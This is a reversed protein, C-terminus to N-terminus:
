FARSISFDSLHALFKGRDGFTSSIKRCQEAKTECFEIAGELGLATVANFRSSQADKRLKKGVVDESGVEDLIDDRVQFASGLAKSYGSLAARQAPTARGIIGGALLAFDFLKGTKLAHCSALDAASPHPSPYLDIMQGGALGSFGIADALHMVLTARIAPDPDTAEDAIIRFALALLADGALIATAEDYQRHLTPKGRRLDDNDMAPLDDHILSQAHICEVACAVRLLRPYHAGFLEGAALTLLARLRKGAGITAYRMADTLRGEAGPKNPLAAALFNDVDRKITDIKQDFKGGSSPCASAVLVDVPKFKATEPRGDIEVVTGGWQHALADVVSRVGEEPTSAAATVAVTSVNDLLAMDIDDGSKVLQGSEIGCASGVELLRNANSSIDDGVVILHDCLPAVQEVAAQRNTTAYCIDSSRPAQVNKFRQEICAIIHASENVSFTTQVAYAVLTNPPLNIAAVEHESGVLSIAGPPLQGMTGVIEPHGAHGILIIHRGAQYHRVVEQHVKSVLPCTTDVVRLQRDHAAHRVATSVGHASLVVVADDPVDDLEQVFIAGKKELGEVVDSNHVIHRRVYVPAGYAHIADEVAQIARVVGACFGRPNILLITRDAEM